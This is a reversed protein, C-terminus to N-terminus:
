DTYNTLQPPWNALNLHRKELLAQYTEMTRGIVADPTFGLDVIFCRGMRIRRRRLEPDDLLRVFCPREKWPMYVSQLIGERAFIV